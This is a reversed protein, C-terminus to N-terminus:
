PIQMLYSKNGRGNSRTICQIGKKHFVQPLQLLGIEEILSFVYLYKPNSCWGEYRRKTNDFVFSLPLVSGAHYCYFLATFWFVYPGNLVNRIPLNLRLGLLWGFTRCLPFSRSLRTKHSHNWALQVLTLTRYFM